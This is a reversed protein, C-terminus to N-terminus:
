VEISMIKESLLIAGLYGLLCGTMILRGAMTGYLMDFFGLSSIDIYCIILCPIVDMIRGELRRSALLTDIEKATEIKDGITTSCVRIVSPLDGGSRKAIAFVEAFDWIDELGSREALQLLLEEPTLSNRIGEKIFLFERTILGERGYMNDMDRCAETIANEMSYGAQLAASVSQMADKFQLKLSEQRRLRKRNRQVKVFLPLLPLMFVVALLTHYFIYALVGTVALGETIYLIWESIQFEYVRYDPPKLSKEIFFNKKESWVELSKVM